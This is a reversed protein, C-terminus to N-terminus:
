QPVEGFYGAYVLRTAAITISVEILPLDRSNICSAEKHAGYGGGLQTACRVLRAVNERLERLDAEIDTSALEPNLLFLSWMADKCDEQWDIPPLARVNAETADEKLCFPKPIVYDPMEGLQGALALRTAAILIYTQVHRVEDPECEIGVPRRDPGLLGISEVYPEKTLKIYRLVNERLTERDYEIDEPSADPHLAFASFTSSKVGKQWSYPHLEPPLDYTRANCQRNM